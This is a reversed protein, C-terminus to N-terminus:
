TTMIPFYIRFIKIKSLSPVGAIKLQGNHIAPLGHKISDILIVVLLWLVLATGLAAAKDLQM